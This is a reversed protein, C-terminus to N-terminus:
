YWANGRLYVQTVLSDVREGDASSASGLGLGRVFVEIRAVEEREAATSPSIEVGDANFYRFRLGDDEPAAIPGVLAVPAASRVRRGVMWKGDIRYAGYTIPEFARVMAGIEVGAVSIPPSSVMAVKEFNGWDATCSTTSLSSIQSVRWTDDDSTLTDGDVFVLISDGKEFKGALQWVDVHVGEVNDCVVGVTRTAHVRVSDPTALLLDGGTASIERLETALIEMSTRATQRSRIISNEERFSQQQVVLTQFIAALMITAVIMVILLEVLTFGPVRRSMTM